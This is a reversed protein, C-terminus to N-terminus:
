NIRTVTIHGTIVDVIYGSSCDRDPAIDESEDDSVTITETQGKKKPAKFAHSTYGSGLGDYSLAATGKKESYSHIVESGGLKRTITEPQSMITYPRIYENDDAVSRKQLITRTSKITIGNKTNGSYTYTTQTEHRETVTNPGGGIFPHCTKEIINTVKYGGSVKYIPAPKKKKAASAPSPGAVTLALLAILFLPLKKM